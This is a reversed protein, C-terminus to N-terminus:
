NRPRLPNYDSNQLKEQSRLRHLASADLTLKEIWLNREFFGFFNGIPPYTDVTCYRCHPDTCLQMDPIILRAKKLMEKKHVQLM